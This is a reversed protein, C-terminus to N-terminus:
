RPAEVDTFLPSAVFEVMLAQFRHGDGEFTGGLADLGDGYLFTQSVGLTHAFLNDVLCQAVRPDNRVAAALEVAGDFDGLIPESAAADVPQGNDLDRWQGLPDFHELAYGPPDMLDHCAGCLPDAETQMTLQERLTLGEMLEPLEPNVRPPPPDIPQCLIRQQIFLGRRTPSNRNTFSQAALFSPHTLVGARGLEPPLDVMAWGGGPSDVGYIAAMRADVFTYPADLLDLVDGDQEFVLYQVLRLTEERMSRATFEDWLPFLESDKNKDELERLELLATYFRDVQAAAQPTDLLAWAVDRLGDTEGLVGSDAMALLEADPTHGLLFFSLRSALEDSTLRRRGTQEDLEGVEVVYVFNPSQLLALLGYTLGMDFDGDGFAQGDLQLAVIGDIEDTTLPRRWLLRGLDRAVTEFCAEGPAAELVCPVSQAMVEPAGVAAEAVAFASDEFGEVATPAVPLELAAVADYGGVSGDAPPTAAAAAEPGLILSVSSVYEHALLRRMGGPPPAVAAGGDDGGDDGTEDAGTGDDQADGGSSDGDDTADVATTPEDSCGSAPVLGIASLLSLTRWLTM